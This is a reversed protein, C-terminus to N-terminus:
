SDNHGFRVQANKCPTDTTQWRRLPLFPHKKCTGRILIELYKGAAKGGGEALVIVGVRYENKAGQHRAMKSARTRAFAVRPPLPVYFAIAMQFQRRLCCFDIGIKDLLEDKSNREVTSKGPM